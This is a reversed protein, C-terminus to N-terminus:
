ISGGSQGQSADRQRNFARERREVHSAARQQGEQMDDCPSEVDHKGHPCM